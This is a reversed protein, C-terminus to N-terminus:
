AALARLARVLADLEETTTFLQPTVRVGRVGASDIAVTWIRYRELLARALAAPELGAVAVNAIACSRAPDSPTNLTIGPQGRIQDTWYRQLYRLRAEKRRIGISDHFDIADNIALDTHVPHTGTHNLKRIDDDAFGFDGFMPWIEAIRDRRVYLIGAGLPCGLWKHLSAAYYDCHLDPIAFELQAFAHAGDVMVQVGHRHAMDAIGAVPLIQGTINVMQCVMLLRTRPTIASEYLQVIEDDSRPDMPLSVVRNVIGYRRAQLRFQDLMAGYDQAAMVAEDGAQWHFGAIVTDLSETTNRTVILEEPPVGAMTALRGRVAAKDDAQRTRLYRSARLNVDRVRGIFAELVPQSQMSYYGNELNIYDPTLLYQRRIGTWFADDQALQHPPMGAYRAWLDDGFLLGLSAAGLTRVFDRKHM